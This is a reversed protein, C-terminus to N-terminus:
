SGGAKQIHKSLKKLELYWVRPKKGVDCEYQDFKRTLTLLDDEEVEDFAKLLEAWVDKAHEGTEFYIFADKVLAFGLYKKAQADKKKSDDDTDDYTTLAEKWGKEAAISLLREKFQNWEEDTRNFTVYTDKSTAIGSGQAAM